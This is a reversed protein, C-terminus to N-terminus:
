RNGRLNKVGKRSCPLMQTGYNLALSYFVTIEYGKVRHLKGGKLNEKPRAGAKSEPEGVKM